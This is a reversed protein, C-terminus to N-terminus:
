KGKLNWVAVIATVVAAIFIVNVFVKQGTGSQIYNLFKDWTGTLHLITIILAVTTIIIIVALAGLPLKQREGGGVAFGFIIMFVLLAIVLIALIPIIGVVVNRAAPVLVLIMGITFAVIADIQKKDDGLIKTKQLIAFIVAFVLAFPLIGQTFIPMSLFTEVM